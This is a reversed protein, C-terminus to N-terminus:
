AIARPAFIFPREGQSAQKRQCPLVPQRRPGDRGDGGFRHQPKYTAARGQTLGRTPFTRFFQSMGRMGPICPQGLHPASRYFRAERLSSNVMGGAVIAAFPHAAGAAPLVAPLVQSRWAAPWKTAMFAHSSKCPACFSSMMTSAPPASGFAPATRWAMTLIALSAHKRAHKGRTQQPCPQMIRRSLSFLGAPETTDAVARARWECPEAEETEEAWAEEEWIGM